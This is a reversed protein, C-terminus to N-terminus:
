HSRDPLARLTILAETPTLAPGSSIPPAFKTSSDSVIRWLDTSGLARELHCGKRRALLELDINCRKARVRKLLASRHHARHMDMITNALGPIRASIMRDNALYALALLKERDTLAGLFQIIESRRRGFENM